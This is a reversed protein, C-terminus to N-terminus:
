KPGHTENLTIESKKKVLESIRYRLSVECRKLKQLYEILLQEQFKEM